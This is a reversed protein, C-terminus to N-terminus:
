KAARKAKIVAAKIKGRLVRDDIANIEDMDGGLGKQVLREIIQEQTEEPAKSTSSAESIEPMPPRDVSGRKIKVMMAKAKGRIIKDSCANVTEMDGDLGKNVLYAVMDDKSLGEVGGSSPKSISSVTPMPPRDVSGRKIKIIMAKAKGRVVKDPYANITDMDGDLGKNALYAVKDDKSLAEIGGSSPTSISLDVTIGTSDETDESEFNVKPVIKDLEQLIKSKDQWNFQNLISFLGQSKRRCTVWVGYETERISFQIYESTLPTTRFTFGFESEKEITMIRCQFWPAVTSPRIKFYAGPVLEMQSFSYQHVYRETDLVPLARQIGHFWVNYMDLSTLMEWMIEKTTSFHHEIVSEGKFPFWDSWSKGIGDSPVTPVKLVAEKQDINDFEIDKSTFHGIHGDPFEIEFKTPYFFIRNVKGTEGSKRVTCPTGPEIRNLIM